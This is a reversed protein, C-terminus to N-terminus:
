SISAILPATLRHTIIWAMAPLAFMMFLIAALFLWTSIGPRIKKVNRGLWSYFLGIWMSAIMLGVLLGILCGIFGSRKGELVGMQLPELFIIVMLLEILTYGRV